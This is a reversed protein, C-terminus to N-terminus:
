KLRPQIKTWVHLGTKYGVTAAVAYAFVYGCNKLM